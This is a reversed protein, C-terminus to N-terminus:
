EGCKHCLLNSGDIACSLPTRKWIMSLNRSKAQFSDAVRLWLHSFVSNVNLRSQPPLGSGLPSLLRRDRGSCLHHDRLAQPFNTGDCGVLPQRAHGLFVEVGDAQFGCVCAACLVRSCAFPSTESSSASFWSTSISRGPSGPSCQRDQAQNVIPRNILLIPLRCWLPLHFSKSPGRNRFPVPLRGM